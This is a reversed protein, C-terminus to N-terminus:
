PKARVEAIAAKLADYGVAGSYVKDGIVWSPTGSLNLPRQLELNATVEAQAAGSAAFSTDIGLTQAVRSVARADPRGAAFLARHFAGYKGAKAAALSALAASQSDPGLVPFERYVVRLKPDEKLLRDVVPLSAKCYGCAYDFFEVLTVDPNASGEWGGAFPTEIASRNAAIAKAVEREQLRTMAEPLIEPHDLIYDRVIKEIAARDTTTVAAGGSSVAATALAGAALATIGILIRMGGENM